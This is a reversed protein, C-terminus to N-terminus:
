ASWGSDRPVSTATRSPTRCASRSGTSGSNTPSATSSPREPSSPRRHVPVATPGWNAKNTYMAYSDIHLAEWRYPGPLTMLGVSIVGPSSESYAGADYHLTGERALLRGSGSVATRVRIHAGMRPSTATMEEERTHQIKVPRGTRQSLLICVPEVGAYLKGGFGGGLGSVTVRIKGLPIGLIDSLDQRLGFPFQHSSVVHVDGDGDVHAVAM